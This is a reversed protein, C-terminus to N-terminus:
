AERVFEASHAHRNYMKAFRLADISNTAVQFCIARGTKDFIKFLKNTM